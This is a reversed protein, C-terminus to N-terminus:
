NKKLKWVSLIIVAIFAVIGAQILLATQLTWIDAFLGLLPAFIAWIVQHSMANISLVTARHHSEVHENIYHGIIPNTFGWIFEGLFIFLFGFYFSYKGMLFLQLALILPIIIISKKEGLKEEIKYAFKSSFASILLFILYFIGFSTTAIGIQKMYPQFFIQSILMFGIMSGSFLILARVRKHTFSFFLGEKLHQFYNLKIVKKYEKPEKFTLSIIFSLFIPIVVLYHVTRLGYVALFGGILSGAAMGILLLFNATGKIKKFLYEKKIEKLSDYLFASDAGSILSKGVSLIAIAIIFNIFSFSMARLLYGSLIILAGLAISLKRGYLDAFVGSPVELILGIISIVTALFGIQSLNLGNEQYFLIFIPLILMFERLFTFVYYKWINRKFDKKSM